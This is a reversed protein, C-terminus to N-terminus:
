FGPLRMQILKQFCIHFKLIIMAFSYYFAPNLNVIQILFKLGSINLRGQLVQFFYKEDKEGELVWPNDIFTNIEDANRKNPFENIFVVSEQDIKDLMEYKFDPKQVPLNKISILGNAAVDLM